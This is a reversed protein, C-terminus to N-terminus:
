RRNACSRIARHSAPATTRRVDFWQRGYPMVGNSEPADPAVFAADPLATGWAPGLDILDHGNAGLGHILVVLRAARGGAKPGWRPGDLQRM